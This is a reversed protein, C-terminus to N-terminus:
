AQLASAAGSSLVGLRQLENSGEPTASFLLREPVRGDMRSTVLGRDKLRSLRVYIEGRSVTEGSAYVIDLGYVDPGLLEVLALIQKEKRSV